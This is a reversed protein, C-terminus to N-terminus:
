IDLTKREKKETYFRLIDGEAVEEKGAGLELEIGCESGAQVSKVEDKARRLTKLKGSSIVEGKRLVQVLSPLVLTGTEVMGGVVIHKRNDRFRALINLRGMEQQVTVMPMLSALVDKIADFLEYVVSYLTVAVKERDALTKVVAPIRTNFGVVLARATKAMTVDGEAIDGVGDAVIRVEVDPSKYTNLTDRIAELSGKTDAKIVLNLISRDGEKQTASSASSALASVARLATTSRITQKATEKAEKETGTVALQDGFQPVGSLGSVEVPMAPTAVELRRGRHDTLTRVRGSVPGVSFYDGVKISGNQILVTAVAGVGPRLNSEVVVGVAPVIYNAQLERIDTSLLILELLEPVGKGNIASIPAVVTSGGWEEPMLDHEVLEGKVREIDADPKDIKNIAVMIPVKHARAHKLAEITQPKMGDDAAVVLIVLDTIKAGHRRMAEFASHGPTDLFTITRPDGGEKPTVQVQYSSIAQTIGGAEKAAVSTKRITDLLTTKGHDVHGMITVIAPRAELKGGTASVLEATTTAAPQDKRAVQIGFDDAIIAATDFDIDQNITAPLGFGILRTIVSTVPQGIADALEKVTLIAPLIKPTSDAM